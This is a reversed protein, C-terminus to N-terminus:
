FNQVIKDKNFTRQIIELTDLIVNGYLSFILVFFSIKRERMIVSKLSREKM